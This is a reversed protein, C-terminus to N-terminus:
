SPIGSLHLGWRLHHPAPDFVISSGERGAADIHRAVPPLPRSRFAETGGRESSTPSRDRAFVYSPAAFGHGGIRTTFISPDGSCTAWRGDSLEHALSRSAQHDRELEARARSRRTSRTASHSCM